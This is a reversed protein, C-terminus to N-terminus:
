KRPSKVFKLFKNIRENSWCEEWKGNQLNNTLLKEFDSSEHETVEFDLDLIQEDVEQDENKVHKGIFGLPKYSTNVSFDNTKLHVLSPRNNVQYSVMAKKEFLDHFSYISSYDGDVNKKTSIEEELKQMFDSYSNTKKYNVPSKFIKHNLDQLSSQFDSVPDSFIHSKQKTPSSQNSSNSSHSHANGTSILKNENIYNVSTSKISKVEEPDAFDDFDDDSEDKKAEEEKPVKIQPEEFDEFSDDNKMELKNSKLDDEKTEDANFDEKKQTKPELEAFDDFSDDDGKM